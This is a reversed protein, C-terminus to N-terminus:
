SDLRQDTLSVSVELDQMWWMEASRVVEEELASMLEGIRRRM